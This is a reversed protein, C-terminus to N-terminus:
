KFENKNRTSHVIKTQSINIIPLTQTVFPHFNNISKEKAKSIMMNAINPIPRITANINQLLYLKKKKQYKIIFVSINM